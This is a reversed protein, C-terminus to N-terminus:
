RRGRGSQMRDAPSCLRHVAALDNKDQRLYRRLVPLSGHGMMRSLSILDAGNLRWLAVRLAGGVACM